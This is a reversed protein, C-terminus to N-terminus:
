SHRYLEGQFHLCVKSMRPWKTLFNDRLNKLSTRTTFNNLSMCPTQEELLGIHPLRLRRRRGREKEEEEMGRKGLLYESGWYM